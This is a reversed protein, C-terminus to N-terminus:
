GACTPSHTRVGVGTLGRVPGSVVTGEIFPVFIRTIAPDFTITGGTGAVFVSFTLMQGAGFMTTVSSTPILPDQCLATAPNSRCVTLKVPLNASGTNPAITITGGAGVNVAAVTFAAQGNPGPVNVTLPVGDDSPCTAAIALVDPPPVNSVSSVSFIYGKKANQNNLLTVSTGTIAFDAGGDTTELFIQNVRKVDVVSEGPRLTLMGQTNQFVVFIKGTKAHRGYIINPDAYSNSSRYVLKVPDWLRTTAGVLNDWNPLARALQTSNTSNEVKSEGYWGFWAGVAAAPGLTKLATPYDKDLAHDANFGDATNADYPLQVSVAAPPIIGWVAPNNNKAIGSENYLLDLPVLPWADTYNQVRWPNGSVGALHLQDIFYAKMQRIYEIEGQRQTYDAGDLLCPNHCPLYYYANPDATTGVGDVFLGDFVATGGHDEFLQQNYEVLLPPAEHCQMNNYFMIMTETKVRAQFRDKLPQSLGGAKMCFMLNFNAEDQATVPWGQGQPGSGLNYRTADANFYVYKAYEKNSNWLVGLGAAAAQQARKKSWPQGLVYDYGMQLAHEIVVATDGGFSHLQNQLVRKESADQAAVLDYWITLL